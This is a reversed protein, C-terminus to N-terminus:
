FFMAYVIANILWYWTLSVLKIKNILLIKVTDLFGTVISISTTMVIDQSNFLFYVVGYTGSAM